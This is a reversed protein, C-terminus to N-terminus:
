RSRDIQARLEQFEPRTPELQVAINIEQGARDRDGEMEFTKALLYHTKADKPDSQEAKMLWSEAEDYSNRNLAIVGLNNLAGKHRSDVALVAHYFSVAASPQEEALRLNGLAFLTETNGPVYAYATGLKREALDFNGSELAQWGANYADLAWLSPERNPLSVFVTSMLVMLLYIVGVRFSGSVASQWLKALGYCLLVILGPAAVLRYRETVFVPLLGIMALAIAAVIWRSKPSFRVALCLGPLALAAILGFYCGPFIIGQERLNTIISLDDYQFVNWFNRLKLCLLGLWGIFNSSIYAKAKALWYASVDANKLTHGAASQAQNISDQLMSAQGAHLGPPFRPYGNAIPNNGIWFNIGGHASLFIPDRAVIYNHIWCPATGIVIGVFLLLGRRAFVPGAGRGNSKKNFALRFLILPTLLLINAVTTATLGLLIGLLVAEVSKIETEQLLRWAILWFVFVFWATPMLMVSYAEAPVFFAWGLAAFLAILKSCENEASLEGRASRTIEITLLYILVATGADLFAQILGPVFPNYGFLKYFAALVYAYGPLGYFALHNAPQGHLIRQAWEDYFHM